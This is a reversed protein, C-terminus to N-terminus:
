GDIQRFFDRVSPALGPLAPARPLPGRRHRSEGALTIVVLERAEPIVVWVIQVGHRLYWAAKDRLESEGEDRGAVEVALIPPVTPVRTTLRGLDGRRWVAAEAGRVEGGLLMGAENGGVFFARHRQSWRRLVAVLDVSVGQQLTGCPPM